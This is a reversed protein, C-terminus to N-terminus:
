RKWFEMSVIGSSPAVLSFGTTGATGGAIQTYYPGGAPIAINLDTSGTSGTASTTPQQAKTSGMNLYFGLPAGATTLGALRMMGASAPMDFAQGTGAALVAHAQTDAPIGTQENTHLWGISRM